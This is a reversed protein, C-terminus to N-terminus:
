LNNDYHVPPDKSFIGMLILVLGALWFLIGVTLAAVALDRVPVSTNHGLPGAYVFAADLVFSIAFVIIGAIFTRKNM